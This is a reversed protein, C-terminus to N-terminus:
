YAGRGTLVAPITRILLKCDLALSQTDIYELDLRLQEAFPLDGRGSVQWICTLGPTAELRRSEAPSYRAVERPLAPRPGVLSMEGKLVCWLQPLEDISFRRLIRGIPTVRPDRRMKFTISEAHDNYASIQDWMEEADVRMSRFKPCRFERGGRGVRTQWFIVPGGDSLKILVAVLLALPAFLIALILAVIADIARKIVVRAEPSPRNWRVDIARWPLALAEGAIIQPGLTEEIDITYTM